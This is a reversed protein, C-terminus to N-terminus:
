SRLVVPKPRVILYLDRLVLPLPQDANIVYKCDKASLSNESVHALQEETLDPRREKQTEASIELWVTTWGTSELIEMEEPFRTDGNLAIRARTARDITKSVWYFPNADLDKVVQGYLQLSTRFFRKHADVFAVKREIGEGDAMEAFQSLDWHEDYADQLTQNMAAFVPFLMEAMDREVIYPSIGFHDCFSEFTSRHGPILGRTKSRSVWRLVEEKILDAHNLIPLPPHDDAHDAPLLGSVGSIVECCTTKGSGAKGGFALRRPYSCLEDYLL